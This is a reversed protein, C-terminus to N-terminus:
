SRQQQYRREREENVKNHGRIERERQSTSNPLRVLPCITGIKGEIFYMFHEAAPWHTHKLRKLLVNTLVNDSVPCFTLENWTCLYTFSANAMTIGDASLAPSATSLLPTANREIWHRFLELACAVYHGEYTTKLPKATHCRTIKQYSLIATHWDAFNQYSACCM